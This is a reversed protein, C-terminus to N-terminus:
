GYNHLFRALQFFREGGDGKKNKYWFKPLISRINTMKITFKDMMM